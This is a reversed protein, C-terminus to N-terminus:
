CIPLSVFFTTGGGPKSELTITGHHMEVIKKVISLGLGNGEKQLFVRVLERIHADDDVLLIRSMGDGQYITRKRRVLGFSQLVQIDAENILLM